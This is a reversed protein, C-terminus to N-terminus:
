NMFIYLILCILYIINIVGLAVFYEEYNTYTVGLKVFLSLLIIIVVNYLVIM